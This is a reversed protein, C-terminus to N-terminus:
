SDQHKKLVSKVEFQYARMRPAQSLMGERTEEDCRIEDSEDSRLSNTQGTVQAVIPLEDTNVAQLDEVYDLIQSVENALEPVEKESLEIRALDALKKLEEESLKKM